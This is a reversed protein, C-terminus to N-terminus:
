FERELDGTRVSDTTKNYVDTHLLRRMCPLLVLFPLLFSMFWLGWGLKGVRLWSLVSLFPYHSLGIRQYYVGSVVIVSSISLIQLSVGAQRSFYM